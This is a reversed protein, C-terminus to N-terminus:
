GAFMPEPRGKIGIHVRSLDGDPTQRKKEQESLAKRASTIYLADLEQGGFACSTPYAVPLLLERERKGAPDYRILKGAGWCASWLFGESDVALGDPFGADAATRIFSRRNTIAGTTSDFDYAYITRRTTDTFYMTRDDPSWGIGNALFVETQCVVLFGDRDLRYLSREPEPCQRELRCMTGAWFRGQSDVAGDNFRTHPNEAEPDALMQLGSQEHWFAFGKETVMVLGGRTRLALVGICLGVNFVERTGKAPDFRSFTQGDIDVWYLRQEEESWIPGEGLSNQVALLHEIHSM